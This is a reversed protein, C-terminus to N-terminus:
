NKKTSEAGAIKNNFRNNKNRNLDIRRRSDSM